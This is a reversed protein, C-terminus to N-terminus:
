FRRRPTIQEGPVVFGVIAPSSGPQQVHAGGGIEQDGGALLCRCRLVASFRSHELLNRFRHGGAGLEEAM